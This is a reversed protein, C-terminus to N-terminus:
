CEHGLAHAMRAGVSRIHTTKPCMNNGIQRFLESFIGLLILYRAQYEDFTPRPTDLNIVYETDPPPYAFRIITFLFVCCFCRFSSQGKNESDPRLNFPTHSWTRYSTSWEHNGRGRVRFFPSQIRIHKDRSMCNINNLYSAIITRDYKINWADSSPQHLSLCLSFALALM